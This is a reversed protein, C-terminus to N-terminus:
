ILQTVVTSVKTSERPVASLKSLMHREYVGSDIQRELERSSYREKISLYIYFEREKPSKTKSLIMLNNTWSLERVVPALKPKNAYTEYFQKMRWMNSGSFGRLEPMNKSIFVALENVVSDGWESNKIKVSIYKGINWYLGILETNVSLM